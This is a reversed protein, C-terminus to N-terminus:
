EIAAFGESFYLSEVSTVVTTAEITETIEFMELEMELAGSLCTNTSAVAAASMEFNESILIQLVEEM